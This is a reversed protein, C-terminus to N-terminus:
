WRKRGPGLIKQLKSWLCRSKLQMRARLIQYTQAPSPAHCPRVCIYMWPNVSAKKYTLSSSMPLIKQERLFLLIPESLSIAKQLGELVGRSHFSGGILLEDTCPWWVQRWTKKKLRWHNGLFETNMELCRDNNNRVM